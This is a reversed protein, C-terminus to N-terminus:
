KKIPFDECIFPLNLHCNQDRWTVNDSKDVAGCHNSLPLLPQTGNWWNSYDVVGWGNSWIWFGLLRSQRLGVWVPGSLGTLSLKLELVRQDEESEIRLLESYHERCYDYAKEWSLTRNIVYINVDGKSCLAFAESVASVSSFQGQLLTVIDNDPMKTWNRYTSCGGDDWEWQDHLLGIWFPSSSNRGEEIVKKNVSDNSISVLDTFHRRCHRQAECWTMEKRVLNYVNSSTYCMFPKKDTCNFHRWTQEHIAECRPEVHEGELDSKNYSYVEGDSWRHYNTARHLGLWTTKYLGNWLKAVENAEDNSYITALTSVTLNCFDRANQRNQQTENVAFHRLRSSSLASSVLAACIVLVHRTMEM